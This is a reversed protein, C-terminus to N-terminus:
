RDLERKYEEIWERLADIGGSALKNLAAEEALARFLKRRHGASLNGRLIEPRLTQMAQAMQSWRPDLRSKLGDRIAAALAPSEAWVAITVTKERLAAGTSFDGTEEDARSALANRKRAEILVQANVAPSDTAAFVLRAGDLHQPLFTSTVKKAPTPFDGTFKPSIVTVDTAGAEILKTAKRLAVAGGGVIVIKMGTVDLLIPYAAPV